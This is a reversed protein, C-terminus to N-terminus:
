DILSIHQKKESVSNEDAHRKRKRRKKEGTKEATKTLIVGLDRKAAQIDKSLGEKVNEGKLANGALNLGAKLANKKATKLAKKALSQAARSTIAKKGQKAVTKVAVKTSAKLAPILFKMLGAFIGGLGRGRQIYAGRHYISM